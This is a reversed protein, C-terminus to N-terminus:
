WGNGRYGSLVCRCVSKVVPSVDIRANNTSEILLKLVNFCRNNNQDPTANKNNAKPM